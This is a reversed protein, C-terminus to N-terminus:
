SSIMFELAESPVPYQFKGSSRELSRNSAKVARVKTFVRPRAVTRNRTGSSGDEM